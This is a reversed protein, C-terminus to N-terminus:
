KRIILVCTDGKGPSIKADLWYIPYAIISFLSIFNKFKFFFWFIKNLYPNKMAYYLKSNVEPPIQIKEIAETGATIIIIGGKKTVRNFENFAKIPDCRTVVNNCVVADFFENPFELKEVNMTTYSINSKSNYKKAIALGTIDLDIANISNNQNALKRTISGNGCGADLIRKGKINKKILDWEWRRIPHFDSWYKYYISKLIEIM